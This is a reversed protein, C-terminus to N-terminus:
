GGYELCRGIFNHAFNINSPFYIHPYMGFVQKKKRGCYSELVKGNRIKETKVCYDSDKRKIMSKHFEHARIRDGSSFLVTNQIGTIQTYGFNQLRDTLVAEGDFFGVFDFVEGDKATFNRNLYMYGGCEAYIPVGAEAATLIEQRLSCNAALEQAYVEPYGGGLYIGACHKPISADKLPSFFHLNGGLRRLIELNEHYYFSFAKDWAVAINTKKMDEKGPWIDFSPCQVTGASRALELLGDLDIYDEMLDALRAIIQSLDETESSQVLGLHRSKLEIGGRYPLYGLVKVGVYNEIADKVIRYHNTSSPRNIVVGAVAVNQFNKLGHVLAAASAAMKDAEMVLIVPADLLKAIGATSGVLPHAGYGDYLGMVGEIVALQAEAGYFSFLQRICYEELLWGDLNISPRGTIKSHFAPDIYDPGIKYPQVSLGRRCFAALLGMSLTTKGSGSAPASIMLRPVDSSISM